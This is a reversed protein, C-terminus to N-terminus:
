ESYVVKLNTLGLQKVALHVMEHQLDSNLIQDGGHNVLGIGAFNSGNKIIFAGSKIFDSNLPINNEPSIIIPVGEIFEIECLSIDSFYNSAITKFKEAIESEDMKEAKIENGDEDYDEEKTYMSSIANSVTNIVKENLFREYFDHTKSEPKNKFIESITKASENSYM